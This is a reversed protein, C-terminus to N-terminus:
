PCSVQLSSCFLCCRALRARQLSPDAAARVFQVFPSLTLKDFVTKLNHLSRQPLFVSYHHPKAQHQLLFQLGGVCARHPKPLNLPVQCALTSAQANCAYSTSSVYPSGVDEAHTQM